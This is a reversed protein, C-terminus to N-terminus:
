WLHAPRRAASRQQEREERDLGPAIASSGPCEIRVARGSFGYRRRGFIDKGGSDEFKGAEVATCSVLRFRQGARQSLEHIRRATAKKGAGKEALLLVPVESKAVELMVSVLSRMSPSVGEVLEHDPTMTTQGNEANQGFDSEMKGAEGPVVM